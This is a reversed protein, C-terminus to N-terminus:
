DDKGGLYKRFAVLAEMYRSFLLYEKRSKGIKELRELLQAETVLEEVKPERGSEYIMRVKLYNIRGVIDESLEDETLVVTDNYIDATMALLNRIKSTTVVNTNGWKDKREVLTTMAKRAIEVYNEETLPICERKRTQQQKFGRDNYQSM